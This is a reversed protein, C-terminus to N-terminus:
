YGPKYFQMMSLFFFLARFLRNWANLSHAARSAFNRTNVSPLSGREVVEGRKGAQRAGTNLQQGAWM